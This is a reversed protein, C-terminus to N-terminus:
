PRSLACTQFVSSESYPIFMFKFECVVTKIQKNAGKIGASEFGNDLSSVTLTMSADIQLAASFGATAIEVAGAAFL